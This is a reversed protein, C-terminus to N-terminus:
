NSGAKRLPPEGQKRRGIALSCGADGFVERHVTNAPVEYTEGAEYVRAKGAMELVVRGELVLQRGDHGPSHFDSDWNPAFIRVEHETYNDAYLGDVFKQLKEDHKAM